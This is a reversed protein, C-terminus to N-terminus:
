PPRTGHDGLPSAASIVSGATAPRRPADNTGPVDVVGASCRAAPGTPMPVCGDGASGLDAGLARQGVAPRLRLNRRIAVGDIIVKRDSSVVRIVLTGTRAWAFTTVAILKGNVTTVSHLSITRLLTSGWYVKVTGCTAFTTALLAIRRAVVATRTLKAGSQAIANSVDLL